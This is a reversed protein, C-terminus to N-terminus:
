LQILSLKQASQAVGFVLRFEIIEHIFAGCAHVCVGGLLVLQAGGRLLGERIHTVSLGVAGTGVWATPWGNGFTGVIMSGTM